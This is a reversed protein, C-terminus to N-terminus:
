LALGDTMGDSCRLVKRSERESVVDLEHPGDIGGRTEWKDRNTRQWNRGGHQQNLNSLSRLLDREQWRCM